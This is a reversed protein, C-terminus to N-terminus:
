ICGDGRGGMWKKKRRKEGEFRVNSVAIEICSRRFCLGKKLCVLGVGSEVLLYTRRCSSRRGWSSRRQSCRGGRVDLNLGSGETATDEKYCQQCTIAKALFLSRM